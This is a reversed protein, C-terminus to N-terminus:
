SRNSNNSSKPSTDNTNIIKFSINYDEELNEKLTFVRKLAKKNGSEQLKNYVENYRDNLLAMYQQLPTSGDPDPFIPNGNGTSENKSNELEACGEEYQLLLSVMFLLIETIKDNITSLKEKIPDLKKLMDEAIKKYYLIMGVISAVLGALMTVVAKAKDRKQQAQDIGIGSATPGTFAALLAPAAMIIVKLAPILKEKFLTSFTTLQGIPGEGELIPNLRDEITIIRDIGSRVRTRVSIM